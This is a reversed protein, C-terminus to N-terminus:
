TRGLLDDDDVLDDDDDDLDLQKVTGASQPYSRQSRNNNNSTLYNVYQSAYPNEESLYTTMFGHGYSAPFIPPPLHKRERNPGNAVPQRIRHTYPLHGPTPQIRSERNKHRPPRKEPQQPPLPVIEEPEIQNNDMDDELNDEQAEVNEEVVNDQITDLINKRSKRRRSTRSGVSINQMERQLSSDGMPRLSSTLNQTKMLLSKDSVVSDGKMVKNGSKMTVGAAPKMDVVMPQAVGLEEVNDDENQIKRGRRKKKQKPSPDALNEVEGDISVGLSISQSPLSSPKIKNIIIIEGNTDYTYDKGRMQFKLKELEKREAEEAEELTQVKTNAEKKEQKPKNPKKKPKQKKSSEDQEQNEENDKNEDSAVSPKESKKRKSATSIVSKTDEEEKPITKVELPVSGKALADCPIFDPEFDARWNPKETIIGEGADRPIFVYNLSELIQNACYDVVHETIKNRYHDDNIISEAKKIIDLTEGYCFNQIKEILYIEELDTDIQNLESAEM